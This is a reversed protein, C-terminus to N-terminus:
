LTTGLALTHSFDAQAEFQQEYEFELEMFFAGGM